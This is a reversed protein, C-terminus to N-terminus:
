AKGMTKLMKLRPLPTKKRYKKQYEETRRVADFDGDEAYLCVSVGREERSADGAFRSSLPCPYIEELTELCIACLMCPYCNYYYPFFCCGGDINVAGPRYCVMGPADQFLFQGRIYYDRVITPTHGHVIIEDTKARGYYNREWINCFHQRSSDEPERADYWAHVIRFATEKGYATHILLRRSFPMSQFFRIYPAIQDPTLQGTDAMQRWFDYQTRPMPLCPAGTTRGDWWRQFDVSWDIVLQEHNGRVTQYKGDSTIHEMAWALVDLVKPGRDILDGTFLITADSDADEIRSLLQMLEDYCGHVDGIVYHMNNGGM